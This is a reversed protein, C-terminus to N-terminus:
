AKQHFTKCFMRFVPVKDLGLKEGIVLMRLYENKGISRKINIIDEDNELFFSSIFRILIYPASLVEKKYAEYSVIDDEDFSGKELVQIDFSQRIATKLLAYFKDEWKDLDKILFKMAYVVPDKKM